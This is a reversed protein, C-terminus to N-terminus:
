SNSAQAAFGRVTDSATFTADQLMLSPRQHKWSPVSPLVESLHRVMQSMDSTSDAHLYRHEGAVQATLAKEARKKGASRERSAVSAAAGSLAVGMPAAVAPFLSSDSSAVPAAAASQVAVMLSPLGLAQLITLAMM